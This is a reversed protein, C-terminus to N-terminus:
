WTFRDYGMPTRYPIHGLRLADFLQRLAQGPRRYRFFLLFLRFKGYATRIRGRYAVEVLSINKSPRSPNAAIYPLYEQRIKEATNRQELTKQSSIGTPNVRWFYLVQPLNALKTQRSLRCWLDYDEAFDYNPRYRPQLNARMMVAGHAFMPAILLMERIYPDTVPYRDIYLHLGFPTIAQIWSGVVGVEPHTDLFNVQRELRQPHSWDDPDMRALYEGSALEVLRNLTATLGHNSQEFYKIRSDKFEAIVKASNDTSGDNVILIEFDKFTQSLLSELSERLYTEVNYVPLLISVKPM